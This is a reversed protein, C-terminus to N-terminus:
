KSILQISIGVVGIFLCLPIFVKTDAKAFETNKIKKFIGLYNFDGIARIIFIAPIFWYGYTTIWAPLQFHIWGSKLLYFVSIGALGLAVILTAFKPIVQPSLGNEKTPIVKSLAWTGGFLWYFHIAGLTIFILFLIISLFTLTM